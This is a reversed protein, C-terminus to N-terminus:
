RRQRAQARLQEPAPEGQEALRCFRKRVRGHALTRVFECAADGLAEPVPVLGAAVTVREGRPQLPCRLAASMPAQILRSRALASKLGHVVVAPPPQAPGSAAGPLRLLSTALFRPLGGGGLQLRRSSLGSPCGGGEM